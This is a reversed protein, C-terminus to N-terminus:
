FLEHTRSRGRPHPHAFSPDAGRDTGASEFSLRTEAFRITQVLHNFTYFHVGAIGLDRDIMPAIADLLTEALDRERALLRRIGRQRHLFALSQGVGVRMSVELLRRRDVVGPVGVYAPLTVGAERTSALWRVLASGDFCLQTTMYDAYGAKEALAEALRSPDIRPHGEPYAAIGICRPAHRHDRLQPLLEVASVYPGLPEPADGGILFLERVDAAALRRLVADLHEVSRVMRAALHVIATHGLARLRTAMEVSRDLGHKPSCTVTLTVPRSLAAAETEAAAFPLVEYRM